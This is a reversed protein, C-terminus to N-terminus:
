RICRAFFNFVSSAVLVVPAEKTHTRFYALIRFAKAANKEALADVLEFSNTRAGIGYVTQRGVYGRRNGGCHKNNGEAAGLGLAVISKRLEDFTPTSTSAMYTPLTISFIKTFKRCVFVKQTIAVHPAKYEMVVLPRLRRDYVLGDCRKLTGNM